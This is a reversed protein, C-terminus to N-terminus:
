PNLKDPPSRQPMWFNSQMLTVCNNRKKKKEPLRLSEASPKQRRSTCEDRKATQRVPANITVGLRRIDTMPQPSSKEQRFASKGNETRLRHNNNEEHKLNEITCQMPTTKNSRLIEPKPGALQDSLKSREAAGKRQFSV